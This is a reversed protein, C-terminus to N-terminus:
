LGNHIHVRTKQLQVTVVNNGSTTRTLDVVSDNSTIVVHIANRKVNNQDRSDKMEKKLNLDSKM